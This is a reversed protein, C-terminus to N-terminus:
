IMDSRESLALTIMLVFDQIKVISVAKQFSFRKKASMSLTVKRDKTRFM